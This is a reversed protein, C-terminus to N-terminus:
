AKEPEPPTETKPTVLVCMHEVDLVMSCDEAVSLQESAMMEGVIMSSVNEYLVRAERMRAHAILLVERRAEPVFYTKVSSM